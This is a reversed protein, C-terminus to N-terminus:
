EAEKNQNIEKAKQQESQIYQRLARLCDCMLETDEGCTHVTYLSNYIQALFNLDVM